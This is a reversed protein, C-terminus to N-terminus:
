GKQRRDLLFPQLKAQADFTKNDDPDKSSEDNVVTFHFVKKKKFWGGQARSPNSRV